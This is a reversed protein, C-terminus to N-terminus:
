YVNEDGARLVAAESDTATYRCQVGDGDVDSDGYVTFETIAADVSYSGRLDGDPEWGLSEWGSGSRDFPRPYRGPSTDPNPSLSIYEDEMADYALEAVWIGSVNSPVEARKAKSQLIMFNPIAISALIGIIAVVIM